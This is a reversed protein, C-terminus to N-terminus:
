LSTSDDEEAITDCTNLTTSEAQIAFQSLSSLYPKLTKKKTSSKTQGINHQSKWQRLARRAETKAQLATNQTAEQDQDAKAMKEAYQSVIEQFHFSRKSRKQGKGKTKCNEDMVKQIVKKWMRKETRPTQVEEEEGATDDFEERQVKLVLQTAMVRSRLRKQREKLDQKNRVVEIVVDPLARMKKVSSKGPKWVSHSQGAVLYLAKRRTDRKNKLSKIRSASRLLPNPSPTDREPSIRCENEEKYRQLLRM